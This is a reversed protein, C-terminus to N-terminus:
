ITVYFTEKKAYSLHEPLLMVFCLSLNLLLTERLMHMDFQCKISFPHAQAYLHEFETEQFCM